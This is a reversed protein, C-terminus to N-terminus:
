MEKFQKEQIYKLLSSRRTFYNVADFDCTCYAIALKESYISQVARLKRRYRIQIYLEWWFTFISLMQLGSIPMDIPLSGLNQPKNQRDAKTRLFM